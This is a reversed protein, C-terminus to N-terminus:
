ASRKKGKAGGTAASKAATTKTTKSSKLEAVEKRLDEISDHLPQPDFVTEQGQQAVSGEVASLRGPLDGLIKEPSLAQVQQATADMKGQLAAVSEQVNALAKGSVALEGSLGEVQGTTAFGATAEEMGELKQHLSVFQAQLAQQNETVKRIEEALPNVEAGAAEPQEHVARAPGAGLSSTGAASTGIGKFFDFARCCLPCFIAALSQKAKDYLPASAQSDFVWASFLFIGILFAICIALGIAMAMAWQILRFIGIIFLGVSGLVSGDPTSSTLYAVVGLLLLILASQILPTRMTNTKM